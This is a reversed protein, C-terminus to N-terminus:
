RTTRPAAASRRRGRISSATRTPGAGAPRVQSRSPQGGRRRPAERLLEVGHGRERLGPRPVGARRLRRAPARSRADLPNGGRLERPDGGAELLLVRHGAEALRAALTGGGAGSGVVIYDYQATSSPTMTRGSAAAGFRACRRIDASAMSPTRREGRMRDRMLGTTRTSTSSATRNRWRWPTWTRRGTRRECRQM